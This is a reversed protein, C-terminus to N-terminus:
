ATSSVRQIDLALAVQLTETFNSADLTICNQLIQRGDDGLVGREERASLRQALRLM